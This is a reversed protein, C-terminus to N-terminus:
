KTGFLAAVREAIQTMLDRTEPTSLFEVGLALRQETQRLVFSPCDLTPDSVTPRRVDEVGDPYPERDLKTVMADFPMGALRVQPPMARLIQEFPLDSRALADGVTVITHRLHEDFPRGARVDLLIPVLNVYMGVTQADPRPVRLAVPCGILLSAAGTAEGLAASLAAVLLRFLPARGASPWPLERELQARSASRPARALAPGRHALLQDAVAVSGGQYVGREIKARQDRAFAIFPEGLPRLVPERAARQASHLEVFEAALQIISNGDAAVHHATLQVVDSGDSLRTAFARLLPVRELDFTVEVPAVDALTAVGAPLPREVAQPAVAAPPHVDLCIAAGQRVLSTRLTEHRRVLADLAAAAAGDDLGGPIRVFRTVTISRGRCRRERFYLGLQAQAPTDGGPPRSPAADAARLRAIQAVQEDLRPHAFVFAPDLWVGFRSSLRSALITAKLSDGGCEFFSRNASAAAGTTSAWDAAVGARVPDDSPVAAAPPDIAALDIRELQARDVKQSMTRPLAPLSVIRSPWM